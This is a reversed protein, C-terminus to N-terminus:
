KNSRASYVRGMIGPEPRDCGKGLSLRTGLGTRVRRLNATYETIAVYTITYNIKFNVETGVDYLLCGMLPLFMILVDGGKGGRLSPGQAPAAPGPRPLAVAARGPGRGDADQTQPSTRRPDRQGGGLPRERPQGVATKRPSRPRSPVQNGGSGLTPPAPVPAWAPPPESGPSPGQVSSHAQSLPLRQEGGRLGVQTGAKMAQDCTCPGAPSGQRSGARWGPGRLGLHAPALPQVCPLQLQPGPHPPLHRHAPPQGPEM